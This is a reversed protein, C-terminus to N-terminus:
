SFLHYCLMGKDQNINFKSEFNHAFEQENILKILKIIESNAMKRLKALSNNKVINRIILCKKNFKDGKEAEEILDQINEVIESLTDNDFEQVVNKFKESSLIDIIFEYNDSQLQVHGIKSEENFDDDEM